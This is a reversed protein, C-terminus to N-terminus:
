RRPTLLSNIRQSRVLLTYTKCDGTIFPLITEPLEQLLTSAILSQNQGPPILIDYNVYGCCYSPTGAFAECTQANISPPASSLIIALCLLTVASAGMHSAASPRPAARRGGPFFNRLRRTQLASFKTM